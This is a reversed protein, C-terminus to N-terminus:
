PRRVFLIKLNCDKFMATSRRIATDIWEDRNGFAGGGLRTLLLRNSGGNAANLIACHFTAEYAAELILSAFSSWNVAAIGSYSVPLASCYIQSVITKQAAGTETIEVDAHYGVRLLGRLADRAPEDLSRLHTEIRALQAPEPLAYGNKMQWLDAPDTSIQRGIEVGIGQLGDLQRAASQGIQDCMPVLYNRFITGAGAAIACAPRQTPDSEYRSVGHEPTIRPSVMELMNFQSAVQITAGANAPDTHLCRIDGFLDGIQLRGNRSRNQSRDRLEALSVFQLRGAGYTRDTADSHLRGDVVKLRSQTSAYDTEAFGTLREFWKM